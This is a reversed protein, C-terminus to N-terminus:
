LKQTKSTTFFTTLMQSNQAHAVRFNMSSLLVSFSHFTEFKRRREREIREFQM